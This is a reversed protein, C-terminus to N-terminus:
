RVLQFYGKVPEKGGPLECVYFYTGSSQNGGDWPNLHYDETKYCKRGWRDFIIMTNGPYLNLCPLNFVNNQPTNGCIDTTSIHDSNPNFIGPRIIDCSIGEVVTEAMVEDLCQDTIRVSHIGYITSDPSLEYPVTVTVSDNSLSSEILTGSWAYSYPALGGSALGVLTDSWLECVTVTDGSLLDQNLISVVLPDYTPVTVTADDSASNGCDDQVTVTVTTTVDADFSNTSGTAGDTWSYGFPDNGGTIMAQLSVADGPCLVTTDSVSVSLPSYIEVTVTITDTVTGAYCADSISIIYDTTQSPQINITSTTQSTSWSYSYPQAGGNAIATLSAMDGPCDLVVDASTQLTPIAVPNQTIYITDPESQVGCQDIVVVSFATDSSLSPNISASGSGTNWLYVYPTNGAAGAATLNVTQPVCNFTTPGSINVTPEPNVQYSVFVSDTNSFTGCADETDVYLLTDGTPHIWISDGVLGNSWNFTYPPNGLTASATLLVSDAACEVITNESAEISYTYSGFDYIHVTGTSITTDGCLNLSYVTLVISDNLETLLDDIAEITFTITTDGPVFHVTDPVGTFDTGNIASGTIYVPVSLFSDIDAIPRTFSIDAPTCGEVIWGGGDEVSGSATQIDINVANSRFSKAELFVGSDYVEDGGDAIAFKLHYTEGCEVQALATLTVTYGDFIIGNPNSNFQNDIFYQSNSGANVNDITVPTTTGPLLAINVGGNAFPGSFGPGSIIFAFVDNYGADVFEPYEESAFVYDFKVSDGTPVFDFELVVADNTSASSIVDLDTNGGGGQGTSAFDIGAGPVDTVNGTSMVVGEPITFNANIADFYGIQNATGSFTINSVAVGPGLMVDEVLQTPTLTNEIVMQASLGSWSGLALVILSLQLYRKMRM